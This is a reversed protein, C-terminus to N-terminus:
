AMVDEEVIRTMRMAERIPRGNEIVVLPVGDLVRKVAPSRQKLWSFLITLGILAMIVLFANTLSFDQGLMAQSAAEGVILLLVFEFNSVSPLIRIGAIRFMLM